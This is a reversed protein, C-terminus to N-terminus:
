GIIASTKWRLYGLYLRRSSTPRPKISTADSTSHQIDIIRRGAVWNNLDAAVDAVLIKRICGDM